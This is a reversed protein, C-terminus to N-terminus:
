AHLGMRESNGQHERLSDAAADQAAGRDRESRQKQRGIGVIVQDFDGDRGYGRVAGEHQGVPKTQGADESGDGGSEDHTVTSPESIDRLLALFGHVGEPFKGGKGGIGEDEKEDADMLGVLVERGYPEGSEGGNSQDRQAAGNRDIGAARKEGASRQADAHGVLV